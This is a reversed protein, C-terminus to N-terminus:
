PAPPLEIQCADLGEITDVLLVRKGDWTATALGTLEVGYAFSDVLKGGSSIIRITGDPSAIIWQGPEQPLLEGSTVSEIPQQHVGRSMPLNWLEEGSITFGVATISNPVSQALGCLDQRGDGDLDAAAIWILRYGPVTVEAQRKGEPDVVALPGKDPQINTCLLSRRGQADPAMPEIRLVNMLSREAWIREGELSVCQVGVVDFYGLVMELKGDANVDVLRVDGIGSHRDSPADDPYKRLTKFEEDLLYAHQLGMASAVYYRRGDAGVGTRLYMAPENADTELPHTSVVKGDIGIEVVSTRIQPGFETKLVLIRPPAGDKEIVLINGPTTNEATLEACSWLKSIRLSEPETRPLIDVMNITQQDIVYLDTDICRKRIRLFEKAGRETSDLTQTYLDKGALLVDISGSLQDAPVPQGYGQILGKPGVIITTPIGSLGFRELASKKLDRFVPLEVGWDGLVELLTDNEVTAEDISVAMFAVKQNDKYKSYAKAMEPMTERCPVCTTAWIDLVGVKGSLFDAAVPKGELDSFDLEGVPKGLFDHGPPIFADVMKAGPPAEFMFARPDSPSSFEANRYEGVLSLGRQGTANELQATPFQFRRLVHTEADIWFVSRGRPGMTQVRHCSRGDISANNLLAIETTQYLLTKLPDDAMLLIMPVPLWSFSSTPIESIARAFIGDALVAEPTIVEPAPRRLVQGRLFGTYAWLQSGNCVLVSQDVQLRLKNPRTMAVLCNGRMERAQAGGPTTVRIFGQDQYGTATKYATVMTRLVEEPSVLPMQSPQPVGPGGSSPLEADVEDDVGAGSGTPTDSKRCGGLYAMGLILWVALLRGSLNLYASEQRRQYRKM